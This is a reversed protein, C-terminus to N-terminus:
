SVVERGWPSLRARKRLADVDDAVGVRYARLWAAQQRARYEDHEIEGAVYEARTRLISDFLLQAETM